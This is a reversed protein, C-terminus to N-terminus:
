VLVFGLFGLLGFFFDVVGTEGAVGDDTREGAGSEVEREGVMSRSGVMDSSSWNSSRM